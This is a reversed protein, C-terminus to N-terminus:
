CRLFGRNGGCFIGDNNKKSKEQNYSVADFERRM